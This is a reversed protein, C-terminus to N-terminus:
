STTPGYALDVAFHPPVALAREGAGGPDTRPLRRWSMVWSRRRPRGPVPRRGPAPPLASEVLE